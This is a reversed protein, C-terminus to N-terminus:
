RQLSQTLFILYICTSECFLEAHWPNIKANNHIDIHMHSILPFDHHMISYVSIIGQRRGGGKTIGNTFSQHGEYWSEIDMYYFPSHPLHSHDWSGLFTYETSIAITLNHYKLLYKCNWWTNFGTWINWVLVTFLSCSHPRFVWSFLESTATYLNFHNYKEKIHNVLHNQIGM